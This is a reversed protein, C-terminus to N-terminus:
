AGISSGPLPNFVKRGIAILEDNSMLKVACGIVDSPLGPMVARIAEEPSDLLFGALEGMTWPELRRRVAPDVQRDAFAVVEDEFVPHALLAGIRTAALLRRASERSAEDAAAVGEAADGEKYPNAAGLVQRYTVVDFGGHVRDLWAFVDEGDRVDAISVREPPRDQASDFTGAASGAPAASSVSTFAPSRTTASATGSGPLPQRNM